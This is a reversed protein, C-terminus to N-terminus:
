LKGLGGGPKKGPGALLEHVLMNNHERDIGIVYTRTLSILAHVGGPPRGGPTTTPDPTSPSGRFVGVNDERQRIQRWPRVTLRWSDSVVTGPLRWPRRPLLGWPRLWHARGVFSDAATAGIAAVVFGALVEATAQTAVLPMWLAFLFGWWFLWVCGKADGVGGQEGVFSALAVGAM